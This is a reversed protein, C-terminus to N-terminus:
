FFLYRTSTPYFSAGQPTRHLVNQFIGSFCGVDQEIVCVGVNVTSPYVKKEWTINLMLFSISHTDFGVYYMYGYDISFTEATEIYYKDKPYIAIFFWIQQMIQVDKQRTSASGPRLRDQRLEYLIGGLEVM